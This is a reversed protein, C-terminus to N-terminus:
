RMIVFLRFLNLAHQINGCHPQCCQTCVDKPLLTAEQYVTGYLQKFWQGVIKDNNSLSQPEFRMHLLLDLSYGLALYHLVYICYVGCMMSDYAQITMRNTTWRQCHRALFPQIDEQLPPLGYSDFYVAEKNNPFFIAVWHEGPEDDDQTNVIYAKEEAPRRYPLLNKPLVKAGLPKLVCSHDLIHQLEITDMKKKTYVLEWIDFFFYMWIDLHGISYQHIKM